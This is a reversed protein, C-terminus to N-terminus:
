TTQSCTYVGASIGVFTGVIIAAKVKDLSM